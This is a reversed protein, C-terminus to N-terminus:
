SNVSNLILYLFDSYKTPLLLHLLLKENEIAQCEFYNSLQHYGPEFINDQTFDNKM